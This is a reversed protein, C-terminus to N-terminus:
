QDYEYNLLLCTDKMGMVSELSVPNVRNDNACVWRQTYPPRPERHVRCAYYHGANDRGKFAVLSTLKMGSFPQQVAESIGSLSRIMMGDSKKEYEYPAMAFPSLDLTFPFSFDLMSPVQSEAFQRRNIFFLLTKPVFVIRRTQVRDSPRGCKGCRSRIMIPGFFNTLASSMSGSNVDLIIFSSQNISSVSHKCFQCQITERYIFDGPFIRKTSFLSFDLTSNQKFCSALCKLLKMYFEHFDQQQSVSIAQGLRNLGSRCSKTSLSKGISFPENIQTILEHFELLVPDIHSTRAFFRSWEISSAFTQVLSNFYCLNGPNGLGAPLFVTYDPFAQDLESRRSSFLM